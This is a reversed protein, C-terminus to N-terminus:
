RGWSWSVQNALGPEGRLHIWFGPSVMEHRSPHPMDDEVKSVVVVIDSHGLVVGAFVMERYHPVLRDPAPGLELFHYRVKLFYSGSNATSASLTSTLELDPMALSM